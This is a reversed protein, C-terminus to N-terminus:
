QQTEKPKYPLLITEDLLELADFYQARSDEADNIFLEQLALSQNERNLFSEIADKSTKLNKGAKHLEFLEKLKGRKWRSDNFMKIQGKINPWTRKSIGEDEITIPRLSLWEKEGLQYHEKRLHNLNITKGEMLLQWDLCSLPGDLSRGYKKAQKCLDAAAQYARSFPHHTKVIAMGASATLDKLKKQDAWGALINAYKAIWITMKEHAYEKFAQLYKVTLSLGIRGDSIFTVDDGGLVIPRFPLIIKGDKSKLTIDKQYEGKLKLTNQDVNQQILGITEKITEKGVEKIADTLEKLMSMIITDELSSRNLYSTLSILLKGFGNGDAHVVSLYSAKDHERGLDDLDKPFIFSSDELLDKFHDKDSARMKDYVEKSVPKLNNKEGQKNKRYFHAEDLIYQAPLGTTRCAHTVSLGLLEVSPKAVQKQTKLAVQAKEWTTILNNEYPQIVLEFALGRAEQFLYQTYARQFCSAKEESDFILVANGGAAYWLDEQKFGQKEELYKNIWGETAQEVLYSAGINERLKNSGFIYSQISRTDLLVLHKKM